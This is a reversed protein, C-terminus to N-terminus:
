RRKFHILVVEAGTQLEDVNEKQIETLNLFPFHSLSFVLYSRM